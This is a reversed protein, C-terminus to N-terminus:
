YGKPKTLFFPAHKLCFVIILVLFDLASHWLFKLIFPWNENFKFYYTFDELSAGEITRICSTKGFVGSLIIVLAVLLVIFREKVEETGAYFLLITINAACSFILTTRYNQTLLSSNKSFYDFTLYMVLFLFATPLLKSWLIVQKM